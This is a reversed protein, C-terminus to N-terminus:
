GCVCPSVDVGVSVCSCAGDHVSVCVYVRVVLLSGEASVCECVDDCFACVEMCLICVIEDVGVGSTTM